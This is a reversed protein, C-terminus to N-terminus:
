TLSRGRLTDFALSAEQVMTQLREAGHAAMDAFLGIAAIGAAGNRAVAPVRDLTVGGIALVPVAVSSAVARLTDVGAPSIGPKSGSAFVTGFVLYDLGGAGVVRTAEDVNHVSRGILFGPGVLLRIRAAPIGTSPLHVGHAGAALAVDLRDNVLVRTPTGRVAEVCRAALRQLARGELDKERLQVLHVGVAAARGVCAVLGDEGGCRARDTVM